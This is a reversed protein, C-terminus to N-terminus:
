KKKTKEIDKKVLYLKVYTNKYKIFKEERCKRLVEKVEINLFTAVSEIDEFSTIYFDNVDYLAVFYKQKLWLLAEKSRMSSIYM